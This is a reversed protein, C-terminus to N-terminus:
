ATNWEATVGLKGCVALASVVGDEHFGNRWYAGCYSFGGRDIMEAHRKQAQDRRVTFVPHDYHFEGCIRSPDILDSSNLTVCYVERSEISQLINMQYTLTAIDDRDPYLAYNWSAWSRRYRPLVSTDTHLVAVNPTYPFDELIEREAADPQQHIRLATDSHCAFIVHDFSQTDTHTQVQVGDDTRAVGAVPTNLRIRDAFSATMRAVYKRSGGTVTRWIPRDSLQVLGHNEYFRAVFRFPFEGFTQLDCSWIAAGMPLLHYKLFADSYNKERAFELVTQEDDEGHMRLYAATDRYFRSVDRLMRYFRPRVLNRRDSILGLLSEGNYEFNTEHCRVSFGMRTPQTPVNLEKLLNVFNPYTRDNYVIFGTDIPIARDEEVVEVTHTHGGPYDNAEFLTIEHHRHLLYACTLGSIGSGIIAIRM